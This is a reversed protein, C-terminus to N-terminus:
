TKGEEALLPAACAPQIALCHRRLSTGALGRARLSRLTLACVSSPCKQCPFHLGVSTHFHCNTVSYCGPSSCTVSPLQVFLGHAWTGLGALLERSPHQPFRCLQTSSHHQPLPPRDTSQHRKLLFVLRAPQCSCCHPQIVHALASGQGVASDSQPHPAM